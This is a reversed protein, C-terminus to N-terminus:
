FHCDFYPLKGARDLSDTTGSRRITEVYDGLSHDKYTNLNLAKHRRGVVKVAPPQSANKNILPVPPPAPADGVVSSSPASGALVNPGVTVNVSGSTPKNIININTKATRRERAAAERKLEQTDFASCTKEKFKRLLKGLQITISDLIDLSLDTHQRLKALAHWHALTFLLDM